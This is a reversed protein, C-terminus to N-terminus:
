AVGGLENTTSYYNFIGVPVMDWYVGIYKHLWRLATKDAKNKGLRTLIEGQPMLDTKDKLLMRVANVFLEEAGSDIMRLSYSKARVTTQNITVQQPAASSLANIAERQVRITEDKAKIVAQQTTRLEQIAESLLANQRLIINELQSSMTGNMTQRLQKEAEIFYDRIAKGKPSSSLMSIHKAADLTLTYDTTPRGGLLNEGKQTFVVYDVNEELCARNIQAKMWTVFDKRVELARHLDRANVSNTESDNIVATSISIIEM